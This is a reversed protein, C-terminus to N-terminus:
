RALEHRFVLSDGKSHLIGREICEDLSAAEPHLMEEILWLEAAGPMLSALEVISKAPGSLRAARTLVADRVSTPIGEADAAIVESVFFPNGGTATYLDQSRKGAQRALLGVANESFRPVPIRATLHPPFDGLLFHLPHKSSVEDDRYSLILMVRTLQIRRGLFKVVDLTAEDAWHLDELVIITPSPSKQLYIFFETSITLRDAGSQIRRLLDSGTQLAIDLFPGLPQPSFLDDCAGWLVRASRGQEAVFCEILSTKGIGAEGSVLVTRGKGARVQGWADALKRLQQEREILEM